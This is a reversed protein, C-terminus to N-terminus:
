GFYEMEIYLRERIFKTNKTTKFGLNLYLQKQRDKDTDAVGIQKLLKLFWQIQNLDTDIPLSDNVDIENSVDVNSFTKINKIVVSKNGYLILERFTAENM